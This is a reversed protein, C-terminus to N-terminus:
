RPARRITKQPLLVEDNRKAGRRWSRVGILAHKLRPLSNRARPPLGSHRPSRDKELRGRYACKGGLAAMVPSQTEVMAPSGKYRHYGSSVAPAALSGTLIELRRASGMFTRELGSMEGTGESMGAALLAQAGPVGKQELSRSLRAGGFGIWRGEHARRRARGARAPEGSAWARAV